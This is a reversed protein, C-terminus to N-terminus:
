VLMFRLGFGYNDTSNVDITTNALVLELCDLDGGEAAVHIVSAGDLTLISLAAGRSILERAANPQHNLLCLMVPTYGAVVTSLISNPTQGEKLLRV